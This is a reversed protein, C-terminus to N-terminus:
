KFILFAKLDFHTRVQANAAVNWSATVTTPSSIEEKVKLQKEVRM